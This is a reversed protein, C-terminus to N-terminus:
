EFKLKLLILKIATVQYPKVFIVPAVVLAFTVIAAGFVLFAACVRQGEAPLNALIENAVYEHHM